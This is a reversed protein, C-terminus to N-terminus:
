LDDITEVYGPLSEFLLLVKRKIRNGLTKREVALGSPMFGRKEETLLRRDNLAIALVDCDVDRTNEATPSFRTLTRGANKVAFRIRLM